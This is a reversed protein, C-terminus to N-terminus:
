TRGEDEAWWKLGSVKGSAQLSADLALAVREVVESTEIKKFWKRLIPKSPEIFCLFANEGEEYNGCGVWLPFAENELEVQWGWDEAGIGRVAFGRQKLEEALFEALRKGFRGPNIEEEEGPYAPFATSRFEVHSRM